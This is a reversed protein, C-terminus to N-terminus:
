ESSARKDETSMIIIVIPGFRETSEDSRPMHPTDHGKWMMCSVMRLEDRYDCREADRDWKMTFYIRSWSACVWPNVDHLHGSIWWPVDEKSFWVDLRGPVFGTM